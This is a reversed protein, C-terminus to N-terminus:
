TSEISVTFGNYNNLVLWLINSEKDETFSEVQHEENRLGGNEM